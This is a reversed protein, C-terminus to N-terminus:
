QDGYPGRTILWVGGTQTLSPPLRYITQYPYRELLSAVAQDELVTVTPGAGWVIWARRWPVQDLDAIPVQLADLTQQSLSGLTGPQPPYLYQPAGRIPFTFYFGSYTSIDMHLIVDGPRYLGAITQIVEYRDGKTADTFPYYWVIGVAMLPALAALAMRRELQGIRDLAWSILMYLTVSAGILSRWLWIPRYVLEIGLAMAPVALTLGLLVGPRWALRWSTGAEHCAKLAVYVALGILGFAVLAGLLDLYPPLAYQWFLMHWSSLFAGATTPVQWWGAKVAAMQGALAGAWPLYSLLALLNYGLMPALDQRLGWRWYKAPLGDVDRLIVALALLSSTLAYFAGYNHTWILAANWAALWAWRRELAATYALIVLLELLAYMRAEQGYYIQFPLLALLATSVLIARPSLPLLDMLRRAAFLAMISFILSPIRFSWANVGVLRVWVWMIALYGPPHVDGATALLMRVAPITAMWATNTEDYWLAAAGLHWARLVSGICVLLGWSHQWRWWSFRRM